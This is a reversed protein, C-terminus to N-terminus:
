FRVILSDLPKLIDFIKDLTVGDKLKRLETSVEKILEISKVEAEKLSFVGLVKSALFSSGETMTTLRYSLRSNFKDLGIMFDIKKGDASFSIDIIFDEEGNEGSVTLLKLYKNFESDSKSIFKLEPKIGSNKYKEVLKEYTVLEEERKIFTEVLKQFKSM